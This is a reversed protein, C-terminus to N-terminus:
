YFSKNLRDAHPFRETRAAITKADAAMAARARPKNKLATYVAKAANAHGTLGSTDMGMQRLAAAYTADASAKGTIGTEREAQQIRQWERITARDIMGPPAGIPFDDMTM